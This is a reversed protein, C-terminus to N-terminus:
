GVILASNSRRPNYVTQSEAVRTMVGAAQARRHVPFGTDQDRGVGSAEGLEVDRLAEQPRRGPRRTGLAADPVHGPFTGIISLLEQESHHLDAKALLKVLKEAGSLTIPIAFSGRNPTGLMVLRGGRGSGSADDMAKWIDPFLQIFRRSVLGGM